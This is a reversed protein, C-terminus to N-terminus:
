LLLTKTSNGLVVGAALNMMDTTVLFSSGGAPIWQMLLQQSCFQSEEAVTGVLSHSDQPRGREV